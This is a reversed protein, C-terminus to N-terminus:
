EGKSEREREIESEKKDLIRVPKATGCVVLLNPARHEVALANRYGTCLRGFRSISVNAITVFTLKTVAWFTCTHCM